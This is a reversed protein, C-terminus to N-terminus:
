CPISRKKNSMSCKQCPVLRKKGSMPCELSARQREMWPLSRQQCSVPCEKGARRRELCPIRRQWCPVRGKQCSAHCELRSRLRESGAAHRQRCPVHCQQGTTRWLRNPTSSNPSRRCLPLPSPAKPRIFFIRVAFSKRAHSLPTASRKGGCDLVRERMPWDSSPRNQRTAAGPSPRVGPPKRHLASFPWRSPRAGWCHGLRAALPPKRHVFPAIPTQFDQFSKLM